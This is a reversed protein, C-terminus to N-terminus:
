TKIKQINIAKAQALPLDLTLTEKVDRRSAATGHRVEYVGPQLGKITLNVTKVLGTSDAMQLTLRASQRSFAARTIEGTMAEIDLRDAVFRIRKKVGDQPFVRIEDPATELRCGYGVLGFAPDEVVYSKAARLCGWLGPGSEFTRAPEYGFIGPTLNFWGYGMGDPHLNHLVSMVGPYGKMLAVPDGSEDFYALLALGNLSGSHWCSIQGRLDPHAFLDIGYSFWIPQDGGRLAKLVRVVWGNKDRSERSGLGAFLRTFFYVQNQGTEDIEIESSYPYPDRLFEDNCTKMLSLMEAHERTWGERELDALIEVANSGTILGAWKFTGTVFWKRCTEYAMRLYDAPSRRKLLGYLKGTRYLAHYINAVFCYSYTRTTVESREKSYTSSPSSPYREKWYLSARVEYTKPNQVYRFLCDDVYTELREIEERSPYVVNKEALFLPEGFGPDGTGGVEWVDQFDDIMKGQRYDFPLFLHNRHYPDEPNEYFQRRAMFSARAKLLQEADDVCFFHLNTWRGGGYLLKLSKQGRGEFSLTLLTADGARKRQKIRVGDAHVEIKELDARSKVEVLVDSKEQVVMSPVVRVGLNGSKVLEERIAPYDEIFVFRLRFSRKQGPQLILSTHGNVWPNWGWDRQQCAAWSHIALLDTGIWDGAFTGAVKYICELSTDEACHVLLFPTDGRPRQLLVYSSHGAVFAHALVKQEHIAKQIATTRGLVAADPLPAGRYLAGYDDDARLPIALEGVELIQGSINEIEIDWLLSRDADFHYGMALTFSRIGAANQSRGEYRVQFREADFSIKRVDDSDLTTERQWRGRRPASPTQGARAPELPNLRWVTAVIDGTWHPDGLAVGRTNLQNGVFNTGLPDGSATVAHITGLDKDFDVLMRGAAIRHLAPNDNRALRGPRASQAPPEQAGTATSALADAGPVMPVVGMAGLNKLLSRRSLREDLLGSGRNEM